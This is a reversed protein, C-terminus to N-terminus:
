EYNKTANQSVTNIKLKDPDELVNLELEWDLNKLRVVQEYTGNVLHAQDISKNLNLSMEASIFQEMIAHAAIGFADKGLRKLEDLSDM